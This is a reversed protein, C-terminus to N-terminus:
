TQPYYQPWPQFFHPWLFLLDITRLWFLNDITCHQNVYPWFISSFICGMGHIFCCIPTNKHTNPWKPGLKQLTFLKPNTLGSMTGKVMTYYSSVMQMCRGHLIVLCRCLLRLRKCERCVYKGIITLCAHLQLYTLFTLSNQHRWKAKHCSGWNGFSNLLLGM